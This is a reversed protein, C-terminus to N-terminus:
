WTQRTAQRRSSCPLVPLPRSSRVFCALAADKRQRRVDKEIGQKQAFAPARPAARGAPKRLHSDGDRDPEGRGAKEFEVEAIGLNEPHEQIHHRQNHREGFPM